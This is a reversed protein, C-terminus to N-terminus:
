VVRWPMAPLSAARAMEAPRTYTKTTEISAHGLRASLVELPMDALRMHHGHTHRLSHPTVNKDIGARAATATVLRWVNGRNVAFLRRDARWAGAYRRLEVFLTPPIEVDRPKDGKGHAVHLYCRDEATYIDGVTLVIAESVRLGADVMVRLLLRDRGARANALLREVEAATLVDRPSLERAPPLTLADAVLEPKLPTLNALWCWSLFSQLAKLRLRITGNAIEGRQANQEANFAIVADLRLPDLRWHECCGRYLRLARAYIDRTRRTDLKALWRLRAEDFAALAAAVDQVLAAPQTTTTLTTM